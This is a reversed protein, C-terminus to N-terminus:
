NGLCLLVGNTCSMFLRGDAAILGDFAPVFDCQEKHIVKGDSASVIWLVSGNRGEYSALPDEEPVVDAPGAVLLKDDALVMARVLVPISISWKDKSKKANRGPSKKKPKLERAFLRCLTKGPTFGRRVRVNKTQLNAGYVCEGDFVLLRGFAPVSYMKRSWGPWRSSYTWYKGENLTSDLFGGTAIMRRGSAKREPVAPYDRYGGGQTGMGKLSAPHRKLDSSFREQHLYIDGGDSVLLDSKAGDGYGAMGTDKFPDPHPGDLRAQHLVKGARPDLGYIYIGGDLFSSRGATVYAVRRPKGKTTDDQVLVSGHVPWASEPQGYVLVRRDQPAARFRWVERGDSVRLCYVWGDASGFLVLEGHITPASDIRGGATYRWLVKGRAADLAVITHTDKEATLVRGGDAVPPTIPANLTVKWQQKIRDPIKGRAFGSRRPDHRYVPWDSKRMDPSKVAQGWAPGRLLRRAPAAAQPQRNQAALANFNSLLVGQYCVCQHPAMYLLGNAPLPGYMCPARLWDNRSHDPGKLDLFEVGRKPLLLFRRTATSRHCRFHHGPSMLKPVSIKRVVKGTVPDLGRRSVATISFDKPNRSDDIWVLGDAVFLDLRPSKPSTWLVKGTASDYATISQTKYLVVKELAVLAGARARNYKDKIGAPKGRWLEKGSARDLCVVQRYNSYYVRGHRVALTLPAMPEARSQWITQGDKASVATVRGKQPPMMLWADKAPPSDKDRVRLLLVGRDYLIEDTWKTGAIEGLVKGTVTDLISVPAEYGLTVYLRGSTAVLRRPLTAPALRLMLAQVRVEDWISPTHWQRWGWRPMPRKWLLAGNFADRAILSWRPPMRKDVLGIVGDDWIYFMRGGSSVMAAMSNTIEHSRAYMPGCIWQVHKPPGVVTDNAVANNDAGHLYHPWEDIEKPWPKVRKTWRGQSRAMAVGRPALVRDIEGDLLKGATDEIVLLNVLNDAYPLVKGDWPSVSVRGYRGLQRIHKRAKTVEAPDRSLGQVVARRDAGLAATLKGGACGVHVILGGQFGSQQIVEAASDSWALSVPLILLACGIGIVGAFRSTVRQIM